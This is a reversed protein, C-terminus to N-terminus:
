RSINKVNVEYRLGELETPAVGDQQGIDATPGAESCFTLQAISLYQQSNAVCLDESNGGTEEAEVAVAGTEEIDNDEGLDVDSGPVYIDDDMEEYEIEEEGLFALVEESSFLLRSSGDAM